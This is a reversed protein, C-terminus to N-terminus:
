METGALGQSHLATQSGWLDGNGKNRMNGLLSGKDSPSLGASSSEKFSFTYLVKFSLMYQRSVLLYISLSQSLCHVTQGSSTPSFSGFEEKQEEYFGKKKINQYRPYCYFRAM